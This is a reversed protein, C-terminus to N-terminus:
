PQRCICTTVQLRGIRIFRIGGVRFSRPPPLMTRLACVAGAAIVLALVALLEQAMTHMTVGEALALSYERSGLGPRLM